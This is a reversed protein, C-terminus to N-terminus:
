AAVPPTWGPLPQTLFGHSALQERAFAVGALQAEPPHRSALGIVVLAGLFDGDGDFVPLAISAMEPVREARTLVFGQEVIQRAHPTPSGTYYLLIHASAGGSALDRRTGPEVHHRVEKPTMERYLCVREDGSRVYFATTEGTREMVAHLVPQLRSGLDFSNRYLMGMHLLAPGPSYLGSESRQVLRAKVLVGLLRLLTAKDLGAYEAVDRLSLRLREENFCELVAIGRELVGTPPVPRTATTTTTISSTPARRRSM